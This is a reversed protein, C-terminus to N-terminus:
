KWAVVLTILEDNRILKDPNMHKYELLKSVGRDIAEESLHWFMSWLKKRAAEIYEDPSTYMEIEYRRFEVNNFGAKHFYEEFNKDSPYRILEVQLVEPFLQTVTKQKWQEHSLTRIILPAEKKLVRFCEAAARWRDKIHHWVQSAFICDFSQSHFPFNEGVGLCWDISKDADKARAQSIMQSDPDLGCISNSSWNRRFELAYNGTGCGLDLIKSNQNLGAIRSSEKIWFTFDERRGKDYESADYKESMM